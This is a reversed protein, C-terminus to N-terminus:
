SKFFQTSFINEQKADNRGEGLEEQLTDHTNQQRKVSSSAEEWTPLKFKRNRELNKKIVERLEQAEARDNVSTIFTNRSSAFSDEIRYVTSHFEEFNKLQFAESIQKM